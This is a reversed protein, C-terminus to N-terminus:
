MKLLYDYNNNEYGATILNMKSILSQSLSHLYFILCIERELAENQIIIQYLQVELIKYVIM